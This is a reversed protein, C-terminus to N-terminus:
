GRKDQDTSGEQRAIKDDLSSWLNAAFDSGAKRRLNVKYSVKEGVGRRILWNKNLLTELAQDLESQDLRVDEPMEAVAEVLDQYSMEVERLLLRMLKRLPAPLDALDLASIGGEQKRDDLEGQLRDFVGAM